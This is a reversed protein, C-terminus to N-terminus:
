PLRLVPAQDLLQGSEAKAAFGLLPPDGRTQAVAIPVRQPRDFIVHEWATTADAPPATIIERVGAPFGYREKWSLPQQVSEGLLAEVRHVWLYGVWLAAPAHPQLQRCWGALVRSGPYALSSASDM